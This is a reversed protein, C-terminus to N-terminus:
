GSGAPMGSSFGAPTKLPAKEKLARKFSRHPTKKLIAGSLHEIGRDPLFIVFPRIWSFNDLSAKFLELFFPPSFASYFESGFIEGPTFKKLAPRKVADKNEGLDGFIRGSM